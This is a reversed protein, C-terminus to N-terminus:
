SDAIGLAYGRGKQYTHAWWRGTNINLWPRGFNNFSSMAIFDRGRSSPCFGQINIGAPYEGADSIISLREAKVGFAGELGRALGGRVFDESNQQGTKFSRYPVFILGEHLPYIGGFSEEDSLLSAFSEEDNPFNEGDPPNLFIGQEHMIIECLFFLDSDLVTKRLNDFDEALEYVSESSNASRFGERRMNEVLKFYDGSGFLRIEAEAIAM